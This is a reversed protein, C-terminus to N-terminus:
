HRTQSFPKTPADIDLLTSDEIFQDRATRYGITGIGAVVFAIAPAVAPIWWYYLFAVSSTGAITGLCILVGTGLKLPHRVTWVAVSGIAAWSGIWLLEAWDPLTRFLPVGELVSSLIQSVIQAHVTVGAMQHETETGASFPTYFLDKGSPATTGILVVRDKVLAPDLRGELIDTFSVTEIPRKSSRYNLLMQYGSGVDDSQYGGFSRELPVFDTEGIQMVAKDPPFNESTQPQIGQAALYKLAVQLAFSSYVNGVATGYLLSRRVVGDPDIPFDNFGVQSPLLGPPPPIEITNQDGLQMIAITGTQQLTQMLEAHGPEQPLERYLDMGIVRPQGQAITRIVQAMDRDSPTSRQLKRLDPETIEVTLIRPDTGADPRLRMLHDYVALEPTQLWGLSKAGGVLGTVAITTALFVKWGNKLRDRWHLHADHPVLRYSGNTHPFATGGRSYNALNSDLLASPLMTQESSDFGLPDLAADEMHSLAQRLEAVSQYRQSFHYRVLRSLVARFGPSISPVSWVLEGTDGDMKMQTPQCGTLAQIVTMGLAYLDSCYRPKGALQEAPTYGPTGISVTLASREPDNRLQSQIEKVAGFDILVFKGDEMRRILNAPKIDRHIVNNGHVFEIVGLIDQMFDLAEAETWPRDLLERNLSKGEIFEQVLFFEGEKEFFDIFTPIQPHEGLRRLIEAENRFLRRATELFHSDTNSPKFQKIVCLLRHPPADVPDSDAARNKGPLIEALYTQGFGGAGLVAIIKYRGELLQELMM